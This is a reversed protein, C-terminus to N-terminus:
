KPKWDKQKINQGWYGRILLPIWGLLPIFYAITIPNRFIFRFIAGWGLYMEVPKEPNKNYQRKFDEFLFPWGLPTYYPFKSINKWALRWFEGWKFPQQGYQEVAEDLEEQMQQHIKQRIEYIEEETTEEYPKELWEYPRIRKGRVFILKAPFGMYFIWPFLLLPIIIIGIPFFPIGIKKVLNNIWDFSYTYPNLYEANVTAYPVIDTKYKLSMRIFSTAFKQLQYKRNFGKGIGPVGEPYLLLNSHPYQMMTEFNLFTADIGGAKKWANQIQYPNMLTTMSLMPAVLARPTKTHDYDNERFMKVIFMMADWPFSMGSHNSALIVPHDPHNREIPEDFGILETRFYVDDLLDLVPNALSKCFSVDFYEHYIKKNLYIRELHEPLPRSM